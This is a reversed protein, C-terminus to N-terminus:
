HTSLTYRFIRYTYRNRRSCYIKGNGIYLSRFFFNVSSPM